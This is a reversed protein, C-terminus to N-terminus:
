GSFDFLELAQRSRGLSRRAGGWPEQVIARGSPPRRDKVHRLPSASGAGVISKLGKVPNV